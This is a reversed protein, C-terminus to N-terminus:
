VKLLEEGKWTNHPKTRLVFCENVHTEKNTVISKNQNILEEKVSPMENDEHVKTESELSLLLNWVIDRIQQPQNRYPGSM